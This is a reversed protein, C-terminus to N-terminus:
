SDNERERKIRDIAGRLAALEKAKLSRNAKNSSSRVYRRHRGRYAGSDELKAKFTM